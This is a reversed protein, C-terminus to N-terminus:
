TFKPINTKNINDNIACFGNSDKNLLSQKLRENMTGNTILKFLNKTSWYKVRFEQTVEITSITPIMIM